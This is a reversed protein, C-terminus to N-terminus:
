ICVHVRAYVRLSIICLMYARPRRFSRYLGLPRYSCQNRIEPRAGGYIGGYRRWQAVWSYKAAYKRQKNTCVCMTISSLPAENKQPYAVLSQRPLPQSRRPTYLTHLMMLPHIHQKSHAIRQFSSLIVNQITRFKKYERAQLKLWRFNTYAKEDKMICTILFISQM